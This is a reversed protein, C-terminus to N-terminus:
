SSISINSTKFGFNKLNSIKNIQNIIEHELIPKKIDTIKPGASITSIIVDKIAVSGLRSNLFSDVTIILDKINKVFNGYGGIGLNAWEFILKNTQTTVKIFSVDENTYNMFQNFYAFKKYNENLYTIFPTKCVTEDKSTQTETFDELIESYTNILNKLILWNLITNTDSNLIKEPFTTIDIKKTSLETKMNEYEESCTTQGWVGGIKSISKVM